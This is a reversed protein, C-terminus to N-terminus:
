PMVTIRREEIGFHIVGTLEMIKLVESVNKFKSITGGFRKNQINGKYEIDVNYWRSIKRMISGINENEFVFYGNKWALVEETDVNSLQIDHAVKAQQGPHLLRTTHTALQTVRVSGELLTTKSVAEDAYANINFHTGLVRIEQERRDGEECITHVIFPMKDHGKKAIITKVEFYAEGTLEVKRTRGSFQAPFKLSSAANLWVRTGDPLIIMYQGGKPTSITNYALNRSDADAHGGKLIQFVVQGDQDNRIAINGRNALLGKKEKNLIIQSGDSLTLIAKNGGPNIDKFKTSVIQNKQSFNIQIYQYAGFSLVLLVVAAAALIYKIIATRKIHPIHEHTNKLIASYLREKLEEPTEASESELIRDDFSAYWTNFSVKEADTITGLRWKEALEYMRKETNQDPM